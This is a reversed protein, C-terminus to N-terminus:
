GRFWTLLQELEPVDPLKQTKEKEFNPTYIM